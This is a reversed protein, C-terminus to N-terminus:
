VENNVMGRKVLDEFTIWENTLAESTVLRVYMMRTLPDTFLVKYKNGDNDTLYEDFIHM